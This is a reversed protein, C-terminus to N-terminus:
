RAGRCRAHRASAERVCKAGGGNSGCGCVRRERPVWRGARVHVRTRKIGKPERQPQSALAVAADAEVNPAHTVCASMGCQRARRQPACVGLRRQTRLADRWVRAPQQRVRAQVRRRRRRGCGNSRCHAPVAHLERQKERWHRARWAARLACGTARAGSSIHICAPPRCAHEGAAAGCAPALSASGNARLLVLPVRENALRVGHRASARESSANCLVCSPSAAANRLPASATATLTSSPTTRADDHTVLGDDYRFKSGGRAARAHADVCLCARMVRRAHQSLSAPMSSMIRGRACPALRVARARAHRADCLGPTRKRGRRM